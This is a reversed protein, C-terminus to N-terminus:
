SYPSPPRRPAGIHSMFWPARAVIMPLGKTNKYNRLVDTSDYLTIMLIGVEDSYKKGYADTSAYATKFAPLEQGCPGCGAFFFNIVLAKRGEMLQKLSTRYDGDASAGVVNVYDDYIVDYMKYKSGDYPAEGDRIQSSITIHLANVDMDLAYEERATYYGQPLETVSAYYKKDSALEATLSMGTGSAVAAGGEERIEIVPSAGAPLPDGTARSVTVTYSVIGRVLKEMAEQATKYECGARKCHKSRMGETEYTPPLDVTFQDSVDHGLAPLVTERIDNCHSCRERIVGDATCKADIHEYEAYSHGLAPLVTTETAGCASCTVTSSGDATCTADTVAPAGFTHGTAPLVERETEGCTSCTRHREGDTECTAAVTEWAGYAHEHADCACFVAAAFAGTMAMLLIIKKANM